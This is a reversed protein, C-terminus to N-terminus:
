YLLVSLNEHFLVLPVPEDGKLSPYVHQCIYKFSCQDSKFCDTKFPPPHFANFISIRVRKKKKGKKGCPGIQTLKNCFNFCFFKSALNEQQLNVKIDSSKIKYGSYKHRHSKPRGLFDFM